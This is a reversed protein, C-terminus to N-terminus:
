KSEAQGDPKDAADIVGDNNRDKREFDAAPGTFEERTVKGDTNLDFREFFGYDSEKMRKDTSEEVEAKSLVGDGNADMEAFRREHKFEDKTVVGDRDTDYKDLFHASDRGSRSDNRGGKKRKRDFLMVEDASIFGDQNRDFRAFHDGNLTWEDRSVRGDGDRDMRRFVTEGSRGRWQKMNKIATDVEVQTIVGDNDADLRAFSEKRGRWEDRTVSGDGNTDFTKIARKLARPDPGRKRDRGGREKAQQQVAATVEFLDVKGDGNKDAMYFFDFGGGRQGKGQKGKRKQQQAPMEDATIFGDQNKDFRQMMKTAMQRVREPDMAQDGRRRDDGRGRMDKLETADLFGDGNKDLKDFPLRAGEPLEAKSIMGDGDKDLRQMIQKGFDGGRKGREGREGREKRRVALEEATVLGDGDKDLVSFIHAEVGMEAASLKGDGDADKKAILRAARDGKNKRPKQDDGEGALLPAPVLLLTAILINRM